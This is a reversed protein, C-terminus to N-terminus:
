RKKLLIRVKREFLGPLNGFCLCRKPSLERIEGLIIAGSASLGKM